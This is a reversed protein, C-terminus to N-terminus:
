MCDETDVSFVGMKSPSITTGVVDDVVEDEDVLGVPDEVEVVEIEVVEFVKIAAVGGGGGAEEDDAGTM